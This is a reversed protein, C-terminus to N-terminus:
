LRGGLSKIFDPPTVTPDIEGSEIAERYKTIKSIQDRIKVQRQAVTERPPNDEIVDRPSYSKSFRKDSKEVETYFGSGSGISDEADISKYAKMAEQELYIQYPTKEKERKTENNRTNQESLIRQAESERTNVENSATKRPAFDEIIATTRQKENYSSKGNIQVQRKFAAEADIGGEVGDQVQEPIEPEKSQVQEVKEKEKDSMMIFLYIFLLTLILAAVFLWRQFGEKITSPSEEDLDTKDEADPM